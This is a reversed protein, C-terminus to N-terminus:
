DAASARGVRYYAGYPIFYIRVSLGPQRNVGGCAAPEKFHAM